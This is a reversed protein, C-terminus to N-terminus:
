ETKGSNVRPRMKLVKEFYYRQSFVDIYFCAGNYSAVTMVVTVLLINLFNYHYSLYAPLISLTTYVFQWIIFMTKRHKHGFVTFMNYLFGKKAREVIWKYSTEYKRKEVREGRWVEVVAIYLLQWVIYLLMPYVVIDWMDVNHCGDPGAASPSYCLPFGQETTSHWRIGWVTLVPSVHIFLSTMKDISHPVLSNKWLVIATLLPGNSFSFLTSFLIGRGPIPVWIYFLVLINTFYCFDFMFYHYRLSKYTYWRYSLLSLAKWTHWIYFYQPVYGAVFSTLAINMCFVMFILKDKTTDTLKLITAIDDLEEDQFEVLDVDVYDTEGEIVSQSSSRRLDEKAM